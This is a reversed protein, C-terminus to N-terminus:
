ERREIVAQFAEGINADVIEFDGTEGAALEITSRMKGRSLLLGGADFLAYSLSDPELAMEKTSLQIVLKQRTIRVFGLFSETHGHRRFDVLTVGEAALGPALIPPMYPVVKSSRGFEIRGGSRLISLQFLVVSLALLTLLLLM